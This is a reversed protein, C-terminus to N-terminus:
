KGQKNRKEFDQKSQFYAAFLFRAAVYLLLLGVPILTLYEFTLGM